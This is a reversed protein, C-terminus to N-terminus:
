FMGLEGEDSEEFRPKLTKKIGYMIVWIKALIVRHM